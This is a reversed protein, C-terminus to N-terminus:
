YCVAGCATALLLSSTAFPVVVLLVLLSPRSKLKAIERRERERERERWAIVCMLFRGLSGLANIKWRHALSMASFDFRVRPFLTSISM